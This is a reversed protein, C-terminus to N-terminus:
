ESVFTELCLAFQNASVQANVVRGEPDNSDLQQYVFVSLVLSMLVKLTMNSNIRCSAQWWVPVVADVVQLGKSTALLSSVSRSQM